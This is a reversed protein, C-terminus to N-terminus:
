LRAQLRRWASKLLAIPSFSESMLNEPMVFGTLSFSERAEGSWFIDEVLAGPLRRLRAEEWLRLQGPAAGLLTYVATDLAVPSGSAALLGAQFPKGGAPGMVHMATVADVLSTVPPLALAVDMVLSTFRRGKDGHRAHLWAKNMGSVCGFLNKVACTLRLMRHAKLRPLNLLSDAELALRSIKVGAGMPLIVTKPADLDRVPLSVGGPLRTLAESLGIRRAVNTAQGFAPSDAVTIAAGHDLLYLCAARVVAPDTCCLPDADGRLLNPKVLVKEGRAPHYGIATLLEGVAREVDPSAYSGCRGLAVTVPVTM